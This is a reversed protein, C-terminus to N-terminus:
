DDFQFALTFSWNMGNNDLLNNFQDYVQIQLNSLIFSEDKIEIYHSYSINEAVYYINGSVSNVPIKFTMLQGNVGSSKHPINRCYISLYTDYNLNYVRNSTITTLYAPNYNTFGLIQTIFNSLSLNFTLHSSVTALSITNNSNLTFYPWDADTLNSGAWVINFIQNNLTSLLEEISKYNGNPVTITFSKLATPTSTKQLLINFSNFNTRVNLFNIPLEVSKLYIRKIRRLPDSLIFQCDFPTSTTILNTDFNLFQINHM